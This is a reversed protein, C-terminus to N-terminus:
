RPIATFVEAYRWGLLTVASAEAESDFFIDIMKGRVGSGIDEVTYVTNNIFIKSGLPLVSLDAAVSHHAAPKRGSYTMDDGAYGVIKFEGLSDGKRYLLTEETILDGIPTEGARAGTDVYTGAPLLVEAEAAEPMEQVTESVGIEGGPGGINEAETQYTVSIEEQVKHTKYKQAPVIQGEAAFSPVSVLCMLCIVAGAIWLGTQKM